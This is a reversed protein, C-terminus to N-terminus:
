CAAYRNFTVNNITQKQEQLLQKEILSDLAKRLTPRTCNIVNCMHKQSASFQTERSTAGYIWAYILLENARLKLKNIMWGHVIIKQEDKM